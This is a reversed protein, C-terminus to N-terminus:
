CKKTLFIFKEVREGLWYHGNDRDPFGVHGGNKTVELYFNPHNGALEVPSCSPTLIPDNAANILLTPIKVGAAHNGASAKQYFDDASLYGNVPASFFEDFDRWRKVDKIQAPDIRGPFQEAKFKIKQYLKRKFKNRYLFNDWQDLKDACDGLNCPTSIAIGHTVIKPLTDAKRSLYNIVISGGMSFGVMVAQKYGKQSLTDMVESIDGIEGHEYLRFAKNMEGSCSRANWALIDWGREHLFTAMKRLYKRQSGGELGHILVAVKEHGARLWDLDVFDGDSLTFREREYPLRGKKDQLSPLITQLHGNMLYWPAGPYTSSKIIPM